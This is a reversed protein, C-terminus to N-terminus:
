DPLRKLFTQFDVPSRGLLWTLVKPSGTFGYQEYYAFMKLLTQRPYDPMGAALMRQEWDNRDVCVAQVPRNLRTTLLAAIESQNLPQSGCLEYTVYEHDNELLVRAAAEAVDELDVMSLRTGLAYPLAYIGETTIQRWYGLINQMYPAPQFIAFHLGSAFLMEEVRLKLWHHPMAEVQPHLVSHYVFRSVEAARAAEVALRSVQVEDPSMNPCLHYIATVGQCAQKWHTL